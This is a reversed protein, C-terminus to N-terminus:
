SGNGNRRLKEPTILLALVAHSIAPCATALWKTSTLLHYIETGTAAIQWVQNSM